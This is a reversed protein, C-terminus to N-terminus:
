ASREDLIEQVHALAKEKTTKAWEYSMGFTCEKLMKGEVYIGYLVKYENVPLREITNIIDQRKQRLKEIDREIDIYRSVADAGRQLNRSSQVRDGVSFGGMSEAISVWRKYDILRNQIVVDIKQIQELYKEATLENL